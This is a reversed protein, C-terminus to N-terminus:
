QKEEFFHFVLENFQVTGLYESKPAPTFTQGTAVQLFIRREFGRALMPEDNMVLAWLCPIGDQNQVSLIRAYEPMVMAVRGTRPSVELPYKYIVSMPAKEKAAYELSLIKWALRPSWEAIRSVQEDPLPIAPWGPPFCM